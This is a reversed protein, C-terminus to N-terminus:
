AYATPIRVVPTEPSLPQMIWNLDGVILMRAYICFALVHHALEHNMLSQIELLRRRLDPATHFLQGNFMVNIMEEAKIDHWEHLFGADKWKQNNKGLVKRLRSDSCHQGIVSSLRLYNTQENNAWFVRFDLYFGKLRHHEIGCGSGDVAGSGLNTFAGGFRIGLKKLSEWNSWLEQFRLRFSAVQDYTEPRLQQTLPVTIESM